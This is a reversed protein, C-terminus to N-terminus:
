KPRDQPVRFSACQFLTWSGAKLQAAPFSSVYGPNASIARLNRASPVTTNWVSVLIVLKRIRFLLRRDVIATVMACVVVDTYDVPWFSPCGVWVQSGSNTKSLIESAPVASHMMHKSVAKKDEDKKKGGWWLIISVNYIWVGLSAYM